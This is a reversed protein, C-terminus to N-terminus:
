QKPIRRVSFILLLLGLSILLDAANFAPIGPILVYDGVCGFRIREFLNSFGGSFLSLLAWEDSHERARFWLFGLVGLLSIGSLVLLDPPVAVGWAGGGNCVFSDMGTEAFSRLRQSFLLFFAAFLAGQTAKQLRMAM